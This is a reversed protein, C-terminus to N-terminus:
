NLVLELHGIKKTKVVKLAKSYNLINNIMARPPQEPNTCHLKLSEMFKKESRLFDTLTCLTSNKEM